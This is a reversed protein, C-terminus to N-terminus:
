GLIGSRAIREVAEALIEEERVLAIRVYGEGRSGFGIGPIVLVGTKELLELAFIMSSTYGRPLPAWVFMTARPKPIEWGLRRLGDVLVDRRRQYALANERTCEQPGTLAAIGAQQVVRFVGYDIHAKLEGLGAVVERHGSLFGLRCGALNYSKSVSSFEVGVQRAGPVELFSPPRYGDFALESYSIDHCVIIDYRLAFEVVQSFFERSAVASVPNNPYNLIMLRARRAVEPEIAELDPLFANEALLPVPHLVAGALAPGASYIPYGPDPVLVIEGPDVLALCLHALGDQSGMLVLVEEGPDLDAVGFRARYWSAVARHLEPLGTMPYAFNRPEDLAEKMAQVIHQAPPRDPSGIGLNIVEVGRELVRWRAREMEAFIAASLAKLRAAREVVISKAM